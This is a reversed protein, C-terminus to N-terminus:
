GCYKDMVTEHRKTKETLFSLFAICTEKYSM